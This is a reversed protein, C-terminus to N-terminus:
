GSVEALEDAVGTGDLLEAGAMAAPRRGWESMRAPDAPAPFYVRAEHEGHGDLPSRWGRSRQDLPCDRAPKQPTQWLQVRMAEAKLRSSCTYGGGDFGAFVEALGVLFFVRTRTWGWGSTSMMGGSGGWSSM